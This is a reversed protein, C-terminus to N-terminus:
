KLYVYHKCFDLNLSKLNPLSKNKMLVQLGKESVHGLQQHWLHTGEEEKKSVIAVESVQTSRKLKYLNRVKESKMVVLAGKSVKMVGNQGIFKYGDLDLVGLSIFNKKLESLYM